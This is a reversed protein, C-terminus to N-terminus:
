RPTGAAALVRQRYAVAGAAVTLLVLGHLTRGHFCCNASKSAYGRAGVEFKVGLDVLCLNAPEGPAIRPM